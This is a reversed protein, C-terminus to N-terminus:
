RPLVHGGKSAEAALAIAALTGDLDGAKFRCAAFIWSM